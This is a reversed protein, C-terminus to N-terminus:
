DIVKRPFLPPVETVKTGPKLVGFKFMLEQDNEAIERAGLGKLIASATQSM